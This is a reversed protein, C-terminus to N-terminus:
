SLNVQRVGTTNSLNLKDYANHCTACTEGDKNMKQTFLPVIERHFDPINDYAPYDSLDYETGKLSSLNGQMVDAATSNYNAYLDLNAQDREQHCQNCANVRNAVFSVEQREARVPLWLDSSADLDDVYDFLKNVKWM